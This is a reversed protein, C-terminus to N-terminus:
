CCAVARAARARAAKCLERNFIVRVVAPKSQHGISREVCNRMCRTGRYAGTKISSTDRPETRRLPWSTNSRARYTPLTASAMHRGRLGNIRRARTKGPLVFTTSYEFRCSTWMSGRGLSEAGKEKKVEGSSSYVASDGIILREDRGGLRGVLFRWV